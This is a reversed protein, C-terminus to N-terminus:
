IEEVFHYSARVFTWHGLALLGIGLVGLVLLSTLHDPLTGRIMIARYADILHVMPNLRYFPQYRAPVLKVDYFIPTLYFFFNLLVGLMYQTDRFKVHCTAVLYALSVTILFQLAIVLPLALIASTLRSGDLVLFFVLVPLALLFHILHSMVAVIPLIPAPFGPRRMLEPNGVIAQTAQTLAGAFWSWVILGSFLFSTFHPIDVRFVATFIFHFVLLQTLPNLLTWAIGLISRKYRLKMDRITLERLLDRLYILQRANHPLGFYNM